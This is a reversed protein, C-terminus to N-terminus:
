ALKSLKYNAALSITIVYGAHSGLGREPIANLLVILVWFWLRIDVRDLRSKCM